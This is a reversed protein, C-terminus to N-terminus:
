RAPPQRPSEPSSPSPPYGYMPPAGNRVRRARIDPATTRERGALVGHLCCLRFYVGRRASIRAHRAADTQMTADWKHPAGDDLVIIPLLRVASCAALNRTVYVLAAGHMPAREM